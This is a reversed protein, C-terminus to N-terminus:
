IKASLLYTFYLKFVQLYKQFDAKVSNLYEVNNDRNIFFLARQKSPLQSTIQNSNKSNYQSNGMQVGHFEKLKNDLVYFEDYKRKVVWSECESLSGSSLKADDKNTKNAANTSSSSSQNATNKDGSKSDINWVQIVFACSTKNTKDVIEEIEDISIRFNSLNFNSLEDNQHSQYFDQEDEDEEEFSMSASAQEQSIVTEQRTLMPTSHTKEVIAMEEDSLEDKIEDILDIRVDGNPKITPFDHQNEDNEFDFRDSNEEEDEMDNDAMEARTNFYPTPEAENSKYDMEDLDIETNSLSDEVLYSESDSKVESTPAKTM